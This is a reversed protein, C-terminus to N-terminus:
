SIWNMQNSVVHWGDSQLELEYTNGSASLGAEFYGGNATAHDPRDLVISSINFMLGTGTVGRTTVGRPSASCSSAALVPPRHDTFRDLLEASPDADGEISLCYFKASQQAGSANNDMIYLFLAERIDELVAERDTATGPETSAPITATGGDTAAGTSVQEVGGASEVGEDRDGAATEGAAPLPERPPPADHACAAALATLALATPWPWRHRSVIHRRTLSM